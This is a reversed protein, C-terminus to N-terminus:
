AVNSGYLVIRRLSELEKRMEQQEAHLQKIAGVVHPVIKDLALRRFDSYSVGDITQNTLRVTRPLVNELEQAIFGHQVNNDASPDVKQYADTYQFSVRRPIALILELDEKPQVETINTKARLDSTCCSGAGANVSSATVSGTVVLSGAFTVTTGSVTLDGNVTTMAGTASISVPGGGSATNLSMTGGPTNTQFSEAYITGNPTVAFGEADDCVLPGAIGNSNHIATDQFNVGGVDIFTVGFGGESNTITGHIDVIKTATGDQLQLVSGTTKITTGCLELGATKILGSSEKTLLKMGAELIVDTSFLMSTSASSVFPGGAACTLSTTSQTQFWPLVGGNKFVRFDTATATFNTSSSVISSTGYVFQMSASGGSITTTGVMAAVNIGTMASVLVSGSSGLTTSVLSGGNSQMVLNSLYSNINLTTNISAIDLQSKAYVTFKDVTYTPYLGFNVISKGNDLAGIGVQLRPIDIISSSNINLGLMSMYCTSYDPCAGTLGFCSADLAGGPCTMSGSLTMSTTVNLNQITAMPLSFCDCTGPIGQPGTAGTPGAPGTPGTPGTFGMPGIVGQPGTPGPLGALGTPGPIGQAGTPGTAGQLCFPNTNSCQGMPGEPGPLGNNGQPGSPGSPGSAGQAGPPGAQGAPGSPGSPGAPCTIVSCNDGPMMYGARNGGERSILFVTAILAVLGLALMVLGTIGFGQTAVTAASPVSAGARPKYDLADAGVGGAQLAKRFAANDLEDAM